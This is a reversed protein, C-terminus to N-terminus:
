CRPGSSNRRRETFTGARYYKTRRSGGTRLPAPPILFRPTTPYIRGETIEFKM